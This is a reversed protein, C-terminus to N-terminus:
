QGRKVREWERKLVPRSHTRLELCAAETAEPGKHIEETNLLDHVKDMSLRLTEHDAEAPNLMLIIQNEIRTLERLEDAMEGSTIWEGAKLRESWRMWIYNAQAFFLALHERLNDIWAQRNASLVSGRFSIKATELTAQVQAAAAEAVQKIQRKAINLQVIPGVFVAALSVLVAVLPIWETAPTSVQEALMETPM